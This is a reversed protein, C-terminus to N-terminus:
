FWRAASQVGRLASLMWVWRSVLPPAAPGETGAPPFASHQPGSPFARVEKFATAGRLQLKCGWLLQVDSNMAFGWLHFCSMRWSTSPYIVTWGSLLTGVLM